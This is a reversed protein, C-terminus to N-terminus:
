NRWKLPFGRHQLLDILYKWSTTDFAKTIDLKFLLAPIKKQHYARTLNRVYLFNDQICRKKIFASHSNSITTIIHPSLRMAMVKTVLKVFSHILSILWFESPMEAVMKKPILSIMAGNLKIMPGVTQNYICQFAALLDLKIINWCVRYFTRTFGDPRPSKESPLEDIAQKIEEETFSAEL